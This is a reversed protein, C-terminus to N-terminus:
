LVPSILFPQWQDRFILASKRHGGWPLVVCKPMLPNLIQCLQEGQSCPIVHDDKAWVVMAQGTYQHPSPTCWKTQLFPIAICGFTNGLKSAILSPFNCFPNLFVIQAPAPSLYNYVQGLAAGGLSFGVVIADSQGCISWAQYIDQLISAANPSDLKKSGKTRGFSGYEVAYVDYGLQDMDLLPKAYAALSYSNGHLFLIRRRRGGANFVSDNIKPNVQLLGGGGPLDWWKGRLNKYLRCKEPQFLRTTEQHRVLVFTILLIWFFLLTLSFAVIYSITVGNM